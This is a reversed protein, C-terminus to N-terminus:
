TISPSQENAYFVKQAELRVPSKPANCVFTENPSGVTLWDVILLILFSRKLL